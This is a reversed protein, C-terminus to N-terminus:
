LQTDKSIETEEEGIKTKKTAQSDKAEIPRKEANSQKLSFTLPIQRLPPLSLLNENLPPLLKEVEINTDTTRKLDLEWMRYFIVEWTNINFYQNAVILTNGNILTFCIYSKTARFPYNLTGKTLIGTCNTTPYDTAIFRLREGHLLCYRINMKPNNLTLTFEKSTMNLIIQFDRGTMVVNSDLFLIREVPYSFGTELYFKFQLNDYYGWPWIIKDLKMSNELWGGQYITELSGQGHILTGRGILKDAAIFKFNGSFVLEKEPCSLLPYDKNLQYNGTKWISQSFEQLIPFLTSTDM